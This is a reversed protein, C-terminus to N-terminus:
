NTTSTKAYPSPPCGCDGTLATGAAPLEDLYFAKGDTNLKFVAGNDTGIQLGEIILRSNRIGDVVVPYDFLNKIGSILIQKEIEHAMCAQNQNGCANIAMQMIQAAQSRLRPIDGSGYLNRSLKDATKCGTHGIIAIQSIELDRIALKLNDEFLQSAACDPDYPPILPGASRLILAQGERFGFLDYLSYTMDMCTIMLYEPKRDNDPEVSLSGRTADLHASGFSRYRDALDM